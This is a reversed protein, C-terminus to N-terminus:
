RCFVKLQSLFYKNQLGVPIRSEPYIEYYQHQIFPVYYLFTNFFLNSLNGVFKFALYDFSLGDVSILNKHNSIIVHIKKYM